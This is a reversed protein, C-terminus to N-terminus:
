NRRYLFGFIFYFSNNRDSGQQASDSVGRDDRRFTAFNFVHEDSGLKTLDCAAAM